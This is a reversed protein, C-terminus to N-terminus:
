KGASSPIPVLHDRCETLPTAIRNSAVDSVHKTHEV